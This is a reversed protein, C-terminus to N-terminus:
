HSLKYVMDHLFEERADGQEFDKLYPEYYKKHDLQFGDSSIAEAIYLVDWTPLNMVKHEEDTFADSLLESLEQPFIINGIDCGNPYIYDLYAIHTSHRDDYYVARLRLYHSNWGYEKDEYIKIKEFIKVITEISELYPYANSYRSSM